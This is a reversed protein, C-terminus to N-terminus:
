VLRIRLPTAGHDATGAARVLRNRLPTPGHWVGGDVTSSRRARRGVPPNDIRHTIIINDVTSGCRIDAGPIGTSRRRRITSPCVVDDAALDVLDGITRRHAQGGV